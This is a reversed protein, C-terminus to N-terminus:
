GPNSGADKTKKFIGNLLASAMGMLTFATIETMNIGALSEFLQQSWPLFAVSLYIIIALGLSYMFPRFKTGWFLSWDWQGSGMWKKADALLVSLSGLIAPLFFNLVGGFSTELDGQAFVNLTFLMAFFLFLNRM